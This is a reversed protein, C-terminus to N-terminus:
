KKFNFFKKKQNQINYILVERLNLNGSYFSNIAKLEDYGKVISNRM